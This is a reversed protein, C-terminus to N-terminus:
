PKRSTSTGGRTQPPSSGNQPNPKKSQKSHNNAGTLWGAMGTVLDGSSYFNTVFHPPPSSLLSSLFFPPSSLLSSLFFSLSVFRLGGFM